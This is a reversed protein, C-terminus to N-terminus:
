SMRAGCDSCDGLRVEGPAPVCSRMRGNCVPCHAIERIMLKEWAGVMLQDLTRAGHTRVELLSTHGVDATPPRGEGGRIGAGAGEPIGERRRDLLALSM